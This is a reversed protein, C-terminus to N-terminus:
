LFNIHLRHYKVKASATCKCHLANLPPLDPPSVGAKVHAVLVVYLARARDRTDRLIDAPLLAPWARMQCWEYHVRAARYQSSQRFIQPVVSDPQTDPVESFAHWVIARPRPTIVRSLSIHVDTFREHHRERASHPASSDVPAALCVHLTSGIDPSM